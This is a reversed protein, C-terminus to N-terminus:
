EGVRRAPELAAFREEIYARAAERTRRGHGMTNVHGHKHRDSSMTLGLYALTSLGLRVADSPMCHLTTQLPDPRAFQRAQM